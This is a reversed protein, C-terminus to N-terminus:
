ALFRRRYMTLHWAAFGALGLGFVLHAAKTDALGTAVAGAMCTALGIKQTRRKIKAVNAMKGDRAPKAPVTAGTAAHSAAYQEAMAVLDATAISEDHTVLLSGTRPNAEVGTIGPLAAVQEAVERLLTADTLAPHRLRLRGEICSAIM